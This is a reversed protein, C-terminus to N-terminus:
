NGSALPGHSEIVEVLDEPTHMQSSQGCLLLARDSVLDVGILLVNPQSKWVGVASEPDAAATDFVIVDPRLTLLREVAGPEAPDVSVVQWGAHGQLSGGISSLMLSNGYLAVARM